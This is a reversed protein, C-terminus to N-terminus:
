RGAMKGPHEFCPHGQEILAVGLRRRRPHHVGMKSRDPPTQALAPAATILFLVAALALRRTAEITQRLPKVM